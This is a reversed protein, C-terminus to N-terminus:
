LEEKRWTKRRRRRRAKLQRFYDVFTPEPVLGVMPRLKMAVEIVVPVIRFKRRYKAIYRRKCKEDAISNDIAKQALARSFFVGPSNRASIIDNALNRRAPRDEGEQWDYWERRHTGFWSRDDISVEVMFGRFRAVDNM